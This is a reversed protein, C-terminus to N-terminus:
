PFYRKTLALAARSDIIMVNGFLVQAGLQAQYHAILKSKSEFSVYGAYGLDFSMKCAFAILNGAVGIYQKGAGKNAPSSEILHMYVHDGKDQLCILGQIIGSSERLVLKFVQKEKRSFEKQWDFQWETKKLAAIDQFTAVLVETPLSVGTLAHEISHTLKDIEVAIRRPPM